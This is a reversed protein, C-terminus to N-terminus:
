ATRWGPASFNRSQNQIADVIFNPNRKVMDGFSKSDVAHIHINYQGGGNGSDSMNRVKEALPAPLVMEKKHIMAMGDRPVEDWGGAASPLGFAMVGAFAGAAAIPALAPGVIPILATSAFAGGAATTANAFRKMIAGSITVEKDIAAAWLLKAVNAVQMKAFAVIMDGCMSKFAEKWTATGRILKETMSEFGSSISDFMQKYNALSNQKIKLSNKELDVATKGTAKIYEDRIKEQEAADGHAAALKKKYYGEDIQAKKEIHLRELELFKENTIEGLALQSQNKASTLEIEQLATDRSYALRADALKKADEIEKATKPTAAQPKNNNEEEHEATKESIINGSKGHPMTQSAWNAIASGMNTIAKMGDTALQIIKTLWKVVTEAAPEFFDAVALKFGEWSKSLLKVKEDYEEFAKLQSSSMKSGTKDLEDNLEKLGESGKNLVPILQAGGRGMIQMALATKAAGDATKNFYNAVDGLVSQIPRLNGAADRTEIGMAKFALAAQSTKNSAEVMNRELREITTAASEASGGSMTVAFNFQQVAEASLGTMQATRNIQESLNGFHEELEGLKEVAFAAIFIEVAEKALHLHERLAGVHGNINTSFGKFSDSAKQMGANFQDTQAVIKVDVENDSM